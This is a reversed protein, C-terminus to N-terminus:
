YGLWQRDFNMGYAMNYFADVDKILDEETYKEPYMQNLMWLTGLASQVGPFDWLDQTSPILAIRNNKVAALNAFSADMKLEKIKYTAQNSTACFIYDPNWSFIRETGVTPWTEKSEIDKAMNIGGATEILYSQIMTGNAVKGLDSGMVIATKRENAPIDKILNKAFANKENYFNILQTAKDEAGLVKGVLETAIIMDEPDESYIGVAAIGLKQVADLTQTDNAKHIFVDPKSKALAEMDPKGKGVTGVNALNPAVKAAFDSTYNIGTVINGKGLALVFNAAPGWTMAVSDVNAPIEVQRGAQDTVTFTSSQQTNAQNDVPANTKSSSCGTFMIALLLMLLVATVKKIGIFRM